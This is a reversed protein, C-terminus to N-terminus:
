LFLDVGLQLHFMVVTSGDPVDNGVMFASVGVGGVIGFGNDLAYRAGLNAEPGLMTKPAFYFPLAAGPRLELKSLRHRLVIRPIGAVARGDELEVRLSGGVLLWTEEAGLVTIDVFIPARQAAALGGHGGRMIGSGFATALDLFEETNQAAATRPQAGLCALALCAATAHRSFRFSMAHEELLRRAPAASFFKATRESTADGAASPLQGRAVDFRQRV